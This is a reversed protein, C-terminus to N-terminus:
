TVLSSLRWAYSSDQIISYQKNHVDSPKSRTAKNIKSKELEKYVGHLYVSAKPKKQIEYVYYLALFQSDCRDLLQGADSGRFSVPFLWM